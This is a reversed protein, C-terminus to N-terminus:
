FPSIRKMFFKLFNSNVPVKVATVNNAIDIVAFAAVVILTVASVKFM